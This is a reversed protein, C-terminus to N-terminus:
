FPALVLDDQKVVYFGIWFWGFQEKLAAVTNAMNAVIDPEGELLARIQPLLSEYQEGKTGAIISLDEAM